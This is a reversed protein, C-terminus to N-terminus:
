DIRSSNLNKDTFGAKISFLTFENISTAPYTSSSALAIHNAKLFEYNKKVCKKLNEFDETDKIFRRCKWYKMDYEFCKALTAPTDTYWYAFM